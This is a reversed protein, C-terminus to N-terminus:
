HAAPAAREDDMRVLPGNEKVAGTADHRARKKGIGFDRQLFRRVPGVGDFAVARVILHDRGVFSQGFILFEVIDENDRRIKDVKIGRHLGHSGADRNETFLGKAEVELFRVFQDFRRAFQADRETHRVRIHPM